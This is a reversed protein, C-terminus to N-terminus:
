SISCNQYFITTPKNKYVLTHLFIKAFSPIYLYVTFKQLNTIYSVESYNASMILIVILASHKPAIQNFDTVGNTTLRLSSFFIDSFFTM